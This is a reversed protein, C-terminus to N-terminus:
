LKRSIHKTSAIAHFHPSHSNLSEVQPTQTTNRTRNLDLAVFNIRYLSTYFKGTVADTAIVGRDGRPM